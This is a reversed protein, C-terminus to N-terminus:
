SSFKMSVIYFMEQGNVHMLIHTHFCTDATFVSESPTLALGVTVHVLRLTLLISKFYPLFLLPLWACM